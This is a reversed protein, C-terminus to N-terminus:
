QPDIQASPEAIVAEVVALYMTRAALGSVCKTEVLFCSCAAKGFEVVISEHALGGLAKEAAIPVANGRLVPESVEGVARMRRRSIELFPVAFHVGFWGM